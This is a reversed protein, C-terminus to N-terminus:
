PVVVVDGSKLVINKEMDRGKRFRAYNFNFVMEKGNENRIVKIKKESAYPTLGDAMTLAKAINVYSGLVYEGPNVVKGLVYIKYGKVETVTVTVVAAPIYKRIRETLAAQVQKVTKGAVHLDGVLPFSVAGDPRVVVTKNLDEEKWVYIELSDEPGLKYEDVKVDRVQDPAAQTGSQSSAQACGLLTSMALLAVMMRHLSRKGSRVKTLQIRM